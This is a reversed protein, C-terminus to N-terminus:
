FDKAAWKAACLSPLKHTCRLQIHLATNGTRDTKFVLCQTTVCVTEQVQPIYIHAPTFCVVRSQHQAGVMGCPASARGPVTELEWRVSTPCRAAGSCFPFAGGVCTCHSFGGLSSNGRCTPSEWMGRGVRLCVSEQKLLNRWQTGFGCWKLVISYIGSTLFGNTKSNLM